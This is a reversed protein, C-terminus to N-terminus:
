AGGGMRARAFGTTFVKATSAPILELQPNVSWLVRGDMTGIVVGWSGDPTRESARHFWADVEARQGPSLEQAHAPLAAAPGCLLWAVVLTAVPRPAM